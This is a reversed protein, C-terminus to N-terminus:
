AKTNDTRLGSISMVFDSMSRVFTEKSLRDRGYDKDDSVVKPTKRKCDEFKNLLKAILSYM